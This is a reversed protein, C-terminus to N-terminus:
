AARFAYAATKAVLGSATTADFTSCALVDDSLGYHGYHEFPMLTLYQEALGRVRIERLGVVNVKKKADERVSLAQRRNLLDFVQV